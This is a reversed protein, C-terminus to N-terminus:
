TKGRAKAIIRSIHSYHLGFGDGIERQGSLSLLVDIEQWHRPRMVGATAHYSSWPWAVACDVMRARVPNLVIYRAAELFYSQKEV